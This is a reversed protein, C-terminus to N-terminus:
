SGSTPKPRGEAGLSDPEPAEPPPPIVTEVELTANDDGLESSASAAVAGNVYIRVREVRGSASLRIMEPFRPYRDLTWRWIPTTAGASTIRGAVSYTIACYECVVELRVRYPRADSRPRDASGAEAFPDASSRAPACAALVLVLSTAVSQFVRVATM